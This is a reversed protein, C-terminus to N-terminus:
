DDEEELCDVLPTSDERLWNVYDVVAEWRGQQPHRILLELAVLDIDRGVKASLCCHWEARPRGFSGDLPRPTGIIFLDEPMRWQGLSEDPFHAAVRADSLIKIRLTSSWPDSHYLRGFVHSIQEWTATGRTNLEASDGEIIVYASGTRSIEGYGAKIAAAIHPHTQCLNLIDERSIPSVQGAANTLIAHRLHKRVTDVGSFPLSPDTLTKSDKHVALLCRELRINEDPVLDNRLYRTYDEWRPHTEGSPPAGAMNPDYTFNFWKTVLMPLATFCVLGRAGFTAQAQRVLSQVVSSYTVFSVPVRHNSAIESAQERAYTALFAAALATGADDGTERLLDFWASSLRAIAPGLVHTTHPGPLPAAPAQPATASHLKRLSALARRALRTERWHALARDTRDYVRKVAPGVNVNLLLFKRLPESILAIVVPIIILTVVPSGFKFVLLVALIALLVLVRISASSPKPLGPAQGMDLQNHSAGIIQLCQKSDAHARRVGDVRTPPRREGNDM